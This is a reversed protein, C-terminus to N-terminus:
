TECRIKVNLMKDSGKVFCVGYSSLMERIVTKNRTNKVFTPCKEITTLETISTREEEPINTDCVIISSLLWEEIGIDACTTKVSTIETINDNLEPHLRIIKNCIDGINKSNGIILERLLLREKKLTHLTDKLAHISESRVTEMLSMIYETTSKSNGTDIDNDVNTSDHSTYLIKNSKLLNSVITYAEQLRKWDGNLCCAIMPLQKIPSYLISWPTMGQISAHTAVLIGAVAGNPNTDLDSLLKDRDKKRVGGAGTEHHKIDIIVRGIDKFVIQFDGSHGEKATDIIDEADPFLKRLEESAINEGVQGRKQSNSLTGTLRDLMEQLTTMKDKYEDEMRTKDLLYQNRYDELQKNLITEREKSLEEARQRVTTQFDDKIKHIQEKYDFELTNLKDTWEIKLDKIESEYKNTLTRIETQYEKEKTNVLYEKGHSYMLMGLECIVDQEEESYELIKDM